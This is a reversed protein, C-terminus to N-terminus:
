GLAGRRAGSHARMPATRQRWGPPRPDRKQRTDHSLSRTTPSRRCSRKAWTTRSPGAQDSILRDPSTIVRMEESAWSISCHDAGRGRHGTRYRDFRQRRLEGFVPHGLVATSAQLHQRAAAPGVVFEKAAERGGDQVDRRVGALAGDVGARRSVGNDLGKQLGPRIGGNGDDDQQRQHQPPDEVHHERHRRHQQTSQQGERGACDENKWEVEGINM